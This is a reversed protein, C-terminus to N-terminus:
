PPYFVAAPWEQFPPLATKPFPLTPCPLGLCYKLSDMGVGQWVGIFSVLNAYISIELQSSKCNVKRTALRPQGLAYPSKPWVMLISYWNQYKFHCMESMENCLIWPPRAFCSDTRSKWTSWNLIFYRRHHYWILHWSSFGPYLYFSVVFEFKLQM